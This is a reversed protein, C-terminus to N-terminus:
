KNHAKKKFVIGQTTRQKGTLTKTIYVRPINLKHSAEKVSKYNVVHGDRFIATVDYRSKYPHPRDFSYRDIIRYITRSSMHLESAIFRVSKDQILMDKVKKIIDPDDLVKKVREIAPERIDRYGNLVKQALEGYGHKESFELAKKADSFSNPM